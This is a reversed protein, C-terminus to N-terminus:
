LQRVRYYRLDQGAPPNFTVSTTAGASPITGPIDTWGGTTLAASQEVVYSKGPQSTWTLTIAGTTTDRTVTTILFPSTPTGGPPVDPGAALNAQVAEDNLIGNYVRFEEFTGALNADGTWNSRGLWNNVDNVDSTNIPLIANGTQLLGDRWYNLFTTDPLSNDLTVVVHVLTGDGIPTVANTDFTFAGGGAPTEDRWELRQSEYNTGNSDTLAFYDKGEGGSGPGTV